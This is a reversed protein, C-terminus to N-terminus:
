NGLKRRVRRTVRAVGATLEDVSRVQATRRALKKVTSATGSPVAATPGGRLKKIVDGRTKLQKDRFGITRELGFIHGELEMSHRKAAEADALADRLNPLSTTRAQRYATLANALQRGGDLVPEESSAGAAELWSAVNPAGLVWSPWPHRRHHALLDDEFLFWAAALAEETSAPSTWALPSLGLSLGTPTLLLQDFDFVRREAAPQAVIFDGVRAALERFAPVDGLAALRRLQSGVTPGDAITAPVLEPRVVVGADTSDTTQVYRYTESPQATEREAIQAVNADPWSVDTRESVKTDWVREDIDHTATILVGDLGLLLDPGGPLTVDSSPVAAADAAASLVLVCADASDQPRGADFYTGLLEEVDALLPAKRTRQALLASQRPVAFASRRTAAELRWLMRPASPEGFSLYDAARTFTADEVATLISALDLPRSEDVEFPHFDDDGHREPVPRADLIAAPAFALPHALVLKGGPRVLGRVLSLVDTWAMPAVEFSLVRDLGDLAVVVDFQGSQEKAYGDLGGVTVNVTEGFKERLVEADTTSRVLADVRDAKGAVIQVIEDQTPGLFLVSGSIPLRDTLEALVPGGAPFSGESRDSWPRMEGLVVDPTTPTSM